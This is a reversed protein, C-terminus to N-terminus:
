NRRNELDAIIERTAEKLNEPTINGGLIRAVIVSGTLKKGDWGLEEDIEGGTTRDFEYHGAIIREPTIATVILPMYHGAIERIIVDGVSIEHM